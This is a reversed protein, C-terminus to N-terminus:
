PVVPKGRSSVHIWRWNARLRASPKPNEYLGPTGTAPDVAGSHVSRRPSAKATTPGEIRTTFTRPTIAVTAAPRTVRAAATAHPADAGAASKAASAISHLPGMAQPDSEPISTDSAASKTAAASHDCACPRSKVVANKTASAGSARGSVTTSTGKNAREVVGITRRTATKTPSAAITSAGATAKLRAVTPAGTGAVAAALISPPRSPQSPPTRSGTARVNM